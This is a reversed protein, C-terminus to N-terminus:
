ASKGTADPRPQRPLACAALLLAIALLGASILFGVQYGLAPEGRDRFHDSVNGYLLGAPASLATFLGTIALNQRIDQRRSATLVYNPGYAGILEGAGYLAFAILYLPGSVFAAWLQSALYFAGTLLLGSKPHTSSLLWGLFLGALGKFGFRLVNQWGAYADPATGMAETINLGMNSNMLNATYLLTVVMMAVFLVRDRVFNVIGGITGELFPLRVLEYEPRPIALQGCLFACGGIFPVAGGYLLAYNWPFAIGGTDEALGIGPPL